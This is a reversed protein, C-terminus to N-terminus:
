KVTYKLNLAGCKLNFNNSLAANSLSCCSNELTDYSM